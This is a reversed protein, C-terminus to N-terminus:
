LIYTIHMESYLINCNMSYLQEYNLVIYIGSYNAKSALFGVTVVAGLDATQSILTNTKTTPINGMAIGKM